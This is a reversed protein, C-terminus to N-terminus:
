MMSRGRTLDRFHIYPIIEKWSPCTIDSELENAAQDIVVLRSFCDSYNKDDSCGHEEVEAELQYAQEGYVAQM